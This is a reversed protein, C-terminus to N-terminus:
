KKTSSRGPGAVLCPCGKEGEATRFGGVTRAMGLASPRWPRCLDEAEPTRAGGGSETRRNRERLGGREWSWDTTCVQSKARRRTRRARATPPCHAPSELDAQRPCHAPAVGLGGPAPLPCHGQSSALASNLLSGSGSTARRRHSPLGHHGQSSAERLCGLLEVEINGEHSTFCILVVTVTAGNGLTM